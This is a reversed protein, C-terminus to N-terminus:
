ATATTTTFWLVTRWIAAVTAASLRIIVSITAYKATIILNDSDKFLNQEHSAIITM